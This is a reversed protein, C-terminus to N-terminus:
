ITCNPNWENAILATGFHKSFGTAVYDKKILNGYLDVSALICENDEIGSIVINNYYPNM